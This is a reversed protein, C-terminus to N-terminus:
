DGNRRSMAYAAAGGVLLGGVQAWTDIGGYAAVAHQAVAQVQAYDATDAAIYTAAGGRERIEDALERLGLENRAAAVVRAGRAAFQHATERGMGTSAGM